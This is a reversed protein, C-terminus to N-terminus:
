LCKGRSLESHVSRCSGSRVRADWYWMELLANVLSIVIFYKGRYSALDCDRCQERKGLDQTGLREINRASKSRVM